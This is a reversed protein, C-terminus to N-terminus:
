ASHMVPDPITQSPLPSRAHPGLDTLDAFPRGLTSARNLDYLRPATTSGANSQVSPPYHHPRPQDLRDIPERYSREPNDWGSGGPGREGQGSTDPGLGLASALAMPVGARAVLRDTSAGQSMMGHQGISGEDEMTSRRSTTWSTQDRPPDDMSVVGTLDHLRPTHDPTTWESDRNAGEFSSKIPSSRSPDGIGWEVLKASSGEEEWQGISRTPLRENRFEVRSTSRNGLDPSLARKM